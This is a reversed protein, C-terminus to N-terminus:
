ISHFVGNEDKKKLIMFDIYLSVLENDDSVGWFAPFAGDNTSTNTFICDNEESLSLISAGHDRFIRKKFTKAEDSATAKMLSKVDFIILRAGDANCIGNGSLTKAAFWKSPLKHENFRIRIAVASYVPSSVTEVVYKGPPVRRELPEYFNLVSSIINASIGIVGSTLTIYGLKNVNFVEKEGLLCVTKNNKFVINENLKLHDYPVYSADPKTLNFLKNWQSSNILSKFPPLWFETIEFILWNNEYDCMMEYLHYKSVKPKNSSYIETEVIAKQGNIKSGTVKETKPDHYPAFSFGIGPLSIRNPDFYEQNLEDLLRSWLNYDLLDFDMKYDMSKMVTDWQKFWHSIYAEVRDEPNQKILDNKM